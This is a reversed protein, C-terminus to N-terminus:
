QRVASRRQQARAIAAAVTAGRQDQLQDPQTAATRHLRARRAANLGSVRPLWHPLPAMEQASQVPDRRLGSEDGPQHCPPQRAKRERAKSRQGSGQGAKQNKEAERRSAVGGSPDPM